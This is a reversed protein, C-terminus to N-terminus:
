RNIEPPGAFYDDDDRRDFEDTVAPVLDAPLHQKVMDLATGDGVYGTMIELVQASAVHQAARTTTLILQALQEAELRRAAPTLTLDTLAGAASVRVAVEGHPSRAHGSVENLSDSATRANAATSALHRRYGALWEAPDM